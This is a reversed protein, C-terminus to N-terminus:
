YVCWIFLYMNRVRVRDCVNIYSRSFACGLVVFYNVCVYLVAYLVDSVYLM